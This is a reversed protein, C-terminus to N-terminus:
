VISTFLWIAPSVQSGGVIVQYPVDDEWDIRPLVCFRVWSDMLEDSNISVFRRHSMSFIGYWLQPHAILIVRVVIRSSM